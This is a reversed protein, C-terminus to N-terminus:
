GHAKRLLDGDDDAGALAGALSHAVAAGRRQAKGALPRFDERDIAAQCRGGLRGLQHRALAALAHGERRIDGLLPREGLRDARRPLAPSADVDQV